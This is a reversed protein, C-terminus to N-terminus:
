HRSVWGATTGFSLHSYFHITSFTRIKINSSIQWHASANLWELIVNGNPGISGMRSVTSSKHWMYGDSTFMQMPYFFSLNGRRDATVPDRLLLPPQLQTGQHLDQSLVLRAVIDWVGSLQLVDYAVPRSLRVSGYGHSHWYTRHGAFDLRHTLSLTQSAGTPTNYFLELLFTLLRRQKAVRRTWKRDTDNGKIDSRQKTKVFQVTVYGRCHKQYWVCM